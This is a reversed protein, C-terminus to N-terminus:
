TGLEFAALESAAEALVSGAHMGTRMGHGMVLTTVQHSTALVVRALTIDDLEPVKRRIHDALARAWDDM